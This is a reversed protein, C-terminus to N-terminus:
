YFDDLDEIGKLEDDNQDRYDLDKENRNRLRSNLASRNLEENNAKGEDDELLEIRSFYPKQIELSSTGGTIQKWKKNHETFDNNNKLVKMLKKNADYISNKNFSGYERIMFNWSSTQDNKKWIGNTDMFSNKHNESKKHKEEDLEKVFDEQMSQLNKEMKQEQRKKEKEKKKKNLSTILKEFHREHEKEKAFKDKVAQKKYFDNEEQLLKEYLLRYCEPDYVHSLVSERKAVLVFNERRVNAGFELLLKIIEIDQNVAAHDIACSGGKDRINPNADNELLYKVTKVQDPRRTPPLKMMVALHLPTLGMENTVNVNAGARRLMKMGMLHGNRACWHIPTFYLDDPDPINPDLRTNLLKHVELHNLVPKACENILTVDYAKSKSYPPGYDVFAKVFAKAQKKFFKNVKPLFRDDGEKQESMDLAELEDLESRNMKSSDDFNSTKTSGMESSVNSRSTGPPDSADEGRSQGAGSKIPPIKTIM